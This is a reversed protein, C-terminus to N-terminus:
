GGYRDGDPTRFLVRIRQESVTRAEADAIKRGRYVQAVRNRRRTKPFSGFLATAIPVYTYALSVRRILEPIYDDLIAPRAVVCTRRVCSGLKVIQFATERFVDPKVDSCIRGAFHEASHDDVQGHRSEDGIHRM